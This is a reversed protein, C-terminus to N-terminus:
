HQISQIPRGETRIYASEVLNKQGDIIALNTSISGVDVGLYYRDLAVELALEENISELMEEKSLTEISTKGEENETM